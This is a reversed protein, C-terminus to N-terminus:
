TKEKISLLLLLCVKDKNSWVEALLYCNAVCLNRAHVMVEAESAGLVVDRVYYLRTVSGISLVLLSVTKKKGYAKNSIGLLAMRLSILGDIHIAEM